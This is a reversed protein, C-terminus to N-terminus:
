RYNGREARKDERVVSLYCLPLDVVSLDGSGYRRLSLYRQQITLVPENGGSRADGSHFGDQRLLENGKM